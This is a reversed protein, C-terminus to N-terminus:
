FAVNGHSKICMIFKHQQDIGGLIYTAPPYYIKQNGDQQLLSPSLLKVNVQDLEAMQGAVIALHIHNRIGKALPFYSRDLNSPKIDSEQFTEELFARLAKKVIPVYIFGASM